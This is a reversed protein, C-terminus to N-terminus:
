KLGRLRRSETLAQELLNNGTLFRVEHGDIKDVFTIVGQENIKAKIFGDEFVIPFEQKPKFYLSKNNNTMRIYDINTMYDEHTCEEYGQSEMMKLIQEKNM